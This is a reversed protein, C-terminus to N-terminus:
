KSVLLWIKAKVSVKMTWYIFLLPGLGTVQEQRHSVGPSQRASQWWWSRWPLRHGVGSAEEHYEGLSINRFSTRNWIVSDLSATQFNQLSITMYSVDSTIRWLLPHWDYLWPATLVTMLPHWGVSSFMYETMETVSFTISNSINTNTTMIVDVM